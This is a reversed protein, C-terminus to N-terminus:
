REGDLEPTTYYDVLARGPPWIATSVDGAAVTTPSITVVGFQAAEACSRRAASVLVAASAIIAALTLQM